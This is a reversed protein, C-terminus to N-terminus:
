KNTKKDMLKQISDAKSYEVKMISDAGYKCYVHSWYSEPYEFSTTISYTNNINDYDIVQKIQRNNTSCSLIFITTLTLFIKKM